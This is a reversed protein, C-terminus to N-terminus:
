KQAANNIFESRMKDIWDLENQLSLFINEYIKEWLFIERSSRGPTGGRRKKEMEMHLTDRVKEEYKALLELLEEDTIMEAWALRILFTKRWEPEDPTELIAKKLQSLGKDTISYVKRVPANEQYLVETTALGDRHLKTLAKYIQNNNGSWHMIPSQEFIKKLDYGSFSKWSLVGLIASEINM